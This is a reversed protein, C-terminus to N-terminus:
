KRIVAVKATKINNGEDDYAVIFYIGSAVLNGRSDKGDWFAIKGGPTDYDAILDGTISLVKISSGKILGDITINNSKGIVFPNPYIFLDDFNERPEVFSTSLEALGFNTGIFVKGSKPDIALSVVNNDPLPSNEATFNQILQYGDSSLVFLGKNTGIWKQDIPDVAICNVSLNRVALGVLKTLTTKPRAPDSIMNVGIDMGIWLQGRRDVALSSILDSSLGDSKSLYGQTDDLTNEFTGKDNFYYLGRNGQIPFFWKSGYEDIVMKDLFDSTSIIPNTFSYHYWKKDKTFLSIPKGANSLPNIMWVNGKSDTKIDSIVLFKDNAPIGVMGSNTTNYTEFKGNKYFVAGQGWTGLYITSDSGATLNYIANSVLQPYSKMDYTKWRTGDFEFFGKGTVDKGTAVWVSGSKSVSLNLFSNSAPSSPLIIRTRNNKLELLGNATAIYVGSANINLSQFKTSANEYLTVDQLNVLQYLANEGLMYLSNNYVVLDIVKKDKLLFHSWNNNQFRYLGNSTAAIIESNFQVIKYPVVTTSGSKLTFSDWSEPAALNQANSKQVAIGSQTCAFFVKSKFVSLVKTESPFSGLKLYSDLLALKQASVVTIGLDSSIIVSDGKIFINNISKQTRNTSYIDLIKDISNTKPNLSNIHGEGTGFWLKNNADLGIATLNQSSLGDAKTYVTYSTDSVGTKFAGGSTAAWIENGILVSGKVSKMDAYIKWNGFNQASMCTSFVILIILIRSVKM